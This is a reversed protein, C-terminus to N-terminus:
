TINTLLSPVGAKEKEFESCRPVEIDEVMDLFVEINEYEKMTKGGGTMNYIQDLLFKSKLACERWIDVENKKPKYDFDNTIITGDYDKLKHNFVSIFPEGGGSIHQFTIGNVTSNVKITELANVTNNHVELFPFAIITYKSKLARMSYSKHANVYAFRHIINDGNMGDGWYLVIDYDTPNLVEYYIIPEISNKLDRVRQLRQERRQIALEKKKKLENQKSLKEEPTITPCKKYTHGTGKCHSCVM